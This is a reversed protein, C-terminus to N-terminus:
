VGCARGADEPFLGLWLQPSSSPFTTPLAAVTTHDLAIVRATKPPCVTLYGDYQAPTPAPSGARATGAEKLADARAAGDELDQRRPQPRFGGLRKLIRAPSCRSDWARDRPPWRADEGSEANM